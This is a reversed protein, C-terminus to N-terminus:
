KQEPMHGYDTRDKYFDIIAALDAKERYGVSANVIMKDKIFLVTPISAVNFERALAQEDDVNVKCFKVDPYQQELEDIIPSLMKCPGCWDAWFDVVALCGANAVESEFNAYNVVTM